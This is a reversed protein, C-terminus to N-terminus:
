LRVQPFSLLNSQSHSICEAEFHVTDDVALYSHGTVNQFYESNRLSRMLSNYDDKSASIGKIILNRRRYAFQEIHVNSPISQFVTVFVQGENYPIMEFNMYANTVAAVFKVLINRTEGGSIVDIIDVQEQSAITSFIRSQHYIRSKLVAQAATATVSLIVTVALIAALASSLTLTAKQM